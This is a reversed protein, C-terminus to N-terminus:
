APRGSGCRRCLGSGDRCRTCTRVRLLSGPFAGAGEIRTRRGAASEMDPPSEGPQDSITRLFIVDPRPYRNRDGISELDDVDLEGVGVFEFLPVGPDTVLICHKTWVNVVFQNTRGAAAANSVLGAPLARDRFGSRHQDDGLGM